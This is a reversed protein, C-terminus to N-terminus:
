GKKSGPSFVQPDLKLKMFSEQCVIQATEYEKFYFLHSPCRCDSSGFNAKSEVKRSLLQSIACERKYTSVGYIVEKVQTHPSDLLYDVHWFLKKSSSLHRRIRGELSNLASGVYVFFGTKFNLRGKKGITIPSDKRNEIILCYSGKM